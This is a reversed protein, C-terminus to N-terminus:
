KKEGDKQTTPLSIYFTSGRGVQSEAWIKGKHASIIKKSIYLGYGLGGIARKARKKVKFNKTFIKEMNEKPIGNGDDKIAILINNNEKKASIWIHGNQKGYKIANTILNSVVQELREKDATIELPQNTTLKIEVNKEKAMVYSTKISNNILELINFKSFQYIAVGEEIRSADVMNRIITDLKKADHLMIDLTEKQKENIKGLKEEIILPTLSIISALPTRMEHSALSALEVNRIKLKAQAEKLATIDRGYLNVYDSSIIPVLTFSFIKNNHKIEVIKQTNSKLVELILNRWEKTVLSGIETNWKKLLSSGSDNAYLITGDKAIRLVPSPDESPFRAIDEKAMESFVGHLLQIRSKYKEKLYYGYAIGVLFGLLNAINAIPVDIALSIAWLIILVLPVLISSPLSFIPLFVITFKLRPLLMVFLGAIAFIAGNAGIITNLHLIEINKLFNNLVVLLIGALIGAIFYFLLFAKKGIIRETLSGFAFLMVMNSLLHLFNAHVFLHTVITWVSIGEIIKSPNLAFSDLTKTVLVIISFITITGILWTLVSLNVVKEKKM